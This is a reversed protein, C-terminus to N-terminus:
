KLNIPNIWTQGPLIARVLKWTAISVIALVAGYFIADSAGISRGAPYASLAYLGILIPMWFLTGLFDSAALNRRHALSITGQEPHLYNRKRWCAFCLWLAAVAAIKQPWLLPLRLVAFSLAAMATLVFLSFVSFQRPPLAVSFQRPLRAFLRERIPDYREDQLLDRLRRLRRQYIVNTVVAALGGILALAVCVVLYDRPSLQM